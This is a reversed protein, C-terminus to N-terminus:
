DGFWGATPGVPPAGVVTWSGNSITIGGTITIAM